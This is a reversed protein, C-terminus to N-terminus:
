DIVLNGDHDYRPALYGMYGSTKYWYHVGDPSVWEDFRQYDNSIVDRQGQCASLGFAMIMACILCIIKKM